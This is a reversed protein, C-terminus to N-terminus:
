YNFSDSKENIFNKFAEEYAKNQADATIRIIRAYDKANIVGNGDLDVGMIGVNFIQDKEATFSIRRPFTGNALIIVSYKEGEVFTLTKSSKNESVIENDLIITAAVPCNENVKDRSELLFTNFTVDVDKPLAVGNIEINNIGTNGKRVDALETADVSEGGNIFIKIFLVNKDDCEEPLRFNNYTEVTSDFFDNSSARVNSDAVFTYNVGDTSYAIGWDRPAKNSCLQEANLVISHYGKTSTKILYYGNDDPNDLQKTAAFPSEDEKTLSAKIGYKDGYSLEARDWGDPFFSLEGEYEGANNSVTKSSEDLYDELLKKKGDFSFESLTEGKYYYSRINAISLGDNDGATVSVRYAGSEIRSFNQSSPISIGEESYRGSLIVKGNPDTVSYYMPYGDPSYYKIPSSNSFYDTTKNTYPMKMEGNEDGSFVVDNIYLNGKSQNNHLKERALTSNEQTIARIFVKQKNSCEDPLLIRSYIQYLSTSSRFTHTMIDEWENGDLSFQFLLSAPGQSTSYGKLSLRINDYGITSLEFTFGSQESWKAGDDPSISIAKKDDNWLPVYMNVGDTYASMVANRGYAGGNSFLKGKFINEPASEFSFQNINDGAYTM